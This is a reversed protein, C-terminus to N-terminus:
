HKIVTPKGCPNTALLTGGRNDCWALPEIPEERHGPELIKTPLAQYEDGRTAGGPVELAASL